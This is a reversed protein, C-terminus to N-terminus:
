GRLLSDELTRGEMRFMTKDWWAALSRRFGQLFVEARRAQHRGFLVGIWSYKWSLKPSQLTGGLSAAMDEMQKVLDPRDPYFVCLWNQLLKVCAQHVRPSDELSRIYRIHLDMSVLQAVLKKDSRGVYSLSTSGAERYYVKAEPVFRVSECALLVRCFYEGDDDGLLRTDWPGAAEALERSFLWCATQMFLNHQMKRVLWDVPSLDCWLENPTFKTRYYRYKFQGWSASLLIRKNPSDGLAEMQKSIKDPGMLDDADLFQIYDGKCLSYAKNRTAAAGQNKHTYVRVQDSEFKRAVALTQDTSGDDVVIIEKREWTQAIASRLTDSIWAEANYAPILISVLPKM